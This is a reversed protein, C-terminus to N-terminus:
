RLEAAALLDFAAIVEAPAQVLELLVGEASRPADSSPKPHVFCVDHGSAGRRIGGPTFRVGSAGLWRYAAAYYGAERASKEIERRREVWQGM